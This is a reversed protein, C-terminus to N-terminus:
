VRVSEIRYRWVNGSIIADVGNSDQARADAVNDNALGISAVILGSEKIAPILAPGQILPTAECVVGLFNSNKAFRVAEKISGCRRDADPEPLDESGLMGGKSGFGCRTCFFVGYNPQKWNIATCVSPNFSSFIISRQSAHDYVSKLIIDVQDDITRLDNVSYTTRDTSTPYKIEISVGVSSPLTTLIEELSLFSDYVIKSLEASSMRSSSKSLMFAVSPRAGVGNGRNLGESTTGGMANEANGNINSGSNSGELSSKARLLLVKAQEFTVSSIGINVGEIPLHWEPYVVPIGDKTIQIVAHIYEEALSSATIFSQIHQSQEQHGSLITGVLNLGTGRNSAATNNIVRTSKWYTEVKGGISLSPHNFSKVISLNFSLEGVTKLHMDYLPTILREGEGAGTWSKEVVLQIQSPLVVGRGIARTGFTPYIDFEIACSSLDDVLFTYMESDDKLPLIVSYPVGAEPRTSIVLKLSSLQRSHFLKIPSETVSQHPGLQIQLYCKKDLYNHGYIRFPIMPPPLNLPPVVHMETAITVEADDMFLGSPAMPKLRFDVQKANNRMIGGLDSSVAGAAVAILRAIQIHGRWLAYTWPYWQYEDQVDVRCGADILVQVCQLNGESAAYFVPTWGHFNDPGDVNAGHEILLKTVADHGQRATLHLPLLGDGDPIMHAGRYLLLTTIALHGYQCALSLPIPSTPSSPEVNAAKEILVEACKTHGGMISYVLPSCDDHDHSDLSAGASMLFMTVDYRGYMAAYHLPKRGYVDMAEIIAGQAFCAKIIDLRGTIATEHLCTRNSIDDMYNCNVEGTNLLMSLCEISSEPCARLFIRSLYDKDEVHGSANKRKELHQQVRALDFVSLARTLETEADDTVSESNALTQELLSRDGVVGSGPVITELEAINAAAIDTLDALVENNFCPQIEIQRSLYLEQTKQTSRKDWKKLIKRFGTANIEVYKGLNTLDQQFELFADKLSMLSANAQPGQRTMLIRKKDVLSRARVRCEAEKQLYFLNVKELERELKYFFATKQAQFEACPEGSKSILFSTSQSATNDSVGPPNQAALTNFATNGSAVIQEVSNIIKKLAKYNLYHVAGYDAQQSGIYKGFKM